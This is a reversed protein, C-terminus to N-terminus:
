GKLEIGIAEFPRDTVNEPLHEHAPFNLVQGAKATIEETRGDPYTFRMMGETLIVGIMPPHAHMVSKERPGYHIRIVRVRENEIEVTYHGSDVRVPDEGGPQPTPKSAM